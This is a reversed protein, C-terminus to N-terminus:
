GQLHFFLVASKESWPELMVSFGNMAAMAEVIRIAIEAPLKQKFGLHLTNDSESCSCKGILVQLPQRPGDDTPRLFALRCKELEACIIDGPLLLTPVGKYKLWYRTM